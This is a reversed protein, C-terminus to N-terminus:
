PQTVQIPFHQMGNFAFGDLHRVEECQCLIRLGYSKNMARGHGNM